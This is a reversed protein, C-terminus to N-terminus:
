LTAAWYIAYFGVITIIAMAFYGVRWTFKDRRFEEERKSQSSESKPQYNYGRYLPKLKTHDNSEKSTKAREKNKGQTWLSSMGLGM